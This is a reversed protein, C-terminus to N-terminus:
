EAERKKEPNRWYRSGDRMRMLWGSEIVERVRAVEEEGMVPKTIPIM